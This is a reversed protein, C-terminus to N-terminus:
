KKVETPARKLANRCIVARFGDLFEALCSNMKGRVIVRCLTGKREPFGPSKWRYVYLQETM